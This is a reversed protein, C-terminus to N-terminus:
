LSKRLDYREKVPKLDYLTNEGDNIFVNYTDLDRGLLEVKVVKYYKKPDLTLQKSPDRLSGDIYTILPETDGENTYLKFLGFQAKNRDEGNIEIEDGLFVEKFWKINGKDLESTLEYYKDLDMRVRKRQGDKQEYTYWHGLYLKHNTIYESGENLRVGEEYLTKASSFESLKKNNYLQITGHSPNLVSLSGFSKVRIAM